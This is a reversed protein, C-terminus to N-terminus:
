SRRSRVYRVVLIIIALAGTVGFPIALLEHGSASIVTNFGICVATLTWLLTTILSNGRATDRARDHHIRVTPTDDIRYPDTM